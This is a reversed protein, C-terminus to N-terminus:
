KRWWMMAKFWQPKRKIDREMQNLMKSLDRMNESIGTANGSNTITVTDDDSNGFDITTVAEDNLSNGLDDPEGFEVGHKGCRIRGFDAPLKAFATDVVERFTPEKGYPIGKASIRNMVASPTRGLAIAIEKTPTRAERMLVLEADDADTWPKYKSM